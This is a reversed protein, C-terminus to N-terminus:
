EGNNNIQINEYEFLNYTKESFRRDFENNYDFGVVEEQPKHTLLRKLKKLCTNNFNEIQILIDDIQGSLKNFDAISWEDINIGWSVMGKQKCKRYSGSNLLMKENNILKDSMMWNGHIFSNRVQRLDDIKNCLERILSALEVDEYLRFEALEKLKDIKKAFSYDNCALMGVGFGEGSDIIDGLLIHVEWELYAFKMAVKAWALMMKDHRM